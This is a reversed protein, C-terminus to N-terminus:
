PCSAEPWRIHPFNRPSFNKNQLFRNDPHYNKTQPIKAKRRRTACARVCATQPPVTGHVMTRETLKQSNPLTEPTEWFSQWFFFAGSVKGASTSRAGTPQLGACLVVSCTNSARDGGESTRCASWRASSQWCSSLLRGHSPITTFHATPRTVMMPVFARHM